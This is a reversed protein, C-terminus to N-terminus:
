QARTTKRASPPENTAHSGSSVTAPFATRFVKKPDWLVQDATTSGHSAEFADLLLLALVACGPPSPHLKDSQLLISTKGQPLSNGRISLSGNANVTAMFNSLSLIAVNSRAAAWARLRRNAATIASPNPVEDASLMVNLAASADPIDGLVVPCDFKECLKLGQEFRQLRDEDTKGDGYCFWFLFDAGLVLTPRTKLAVEVERTGEELPQMFFFTSAFSRAPPHHVIIAADIYRSLRYQATTHGGLPESATFGASASAGILVVGEWPSGAKGSPGAKQVSASAPAATEAALQGPATSWLAVFFAACALLVKSNMTGDYVAVAPHPPRVANRM